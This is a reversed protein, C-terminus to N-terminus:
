FMMTHRSTYQWWLEPRFLTEMKLGLTAYVRFTSTDVGGLHQYNNVRWCRAGDQFFLPTKQLTVSYWQALLEQHNLPDYQRWKWPWTTWVSYNKCLKFKSIPLVVTGPYQGVEQHIKNSPSFIENSALRTIYIFLVLIRPADNYTIM